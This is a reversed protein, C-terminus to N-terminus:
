KWRELETCIFDNILQHEVNGKGEVQVPEGFSFSAIKGSEIKGFDKLKRGNKWCDTKLALPVVPVGAKKALKVGISSMQAPDFEHTRTTQPFVIISIGQELKEVGQGMVTKLDQRANTRTVAIPKRARMVYKFVPYSLLAEKVVFTVPRLPRIVTPLILTEMMSMHNGIIVVPGDTKQLNEVGSIDVTVGINELKKLVAYSSDAWRGGDYKGKRAVWSAKGIVYILHPYFILSPFINGPFSLKRPATRYSGNEFHIRKMAEKNVKILSIVEISEM